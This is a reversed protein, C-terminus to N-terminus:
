RIFMVGSNRDLVSESDGRNANKHFNAKTSLPIDKPLRNDRITGTCWVNKERMHELLNVSTFLNDTYLKYPLNKKEPPFQRLMHLLPATCKGYLKEDRETTKPNKCQYINFNVLYGSKTNLSWMKFGFRIPKGRKFQKCGHKDFYKVMSEDNDLDEEPMFYKLFRSQLQDMLPRVKWAKDKEDLKNTDSFHLFQMIQEFRNRRMGNKVPNAMDPQSNWFYLKGPKPDYGSLTMIGIFCKLEDM